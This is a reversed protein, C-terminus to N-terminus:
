FGMLTCIGVITLGTNLYLFIIFLPTIPPPINMYFALILAAGLPPNKEDIFYAKELIDDPILAGIILCILASFAISFLDTTM